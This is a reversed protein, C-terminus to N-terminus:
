PKILDLLFFIIKNDNQDDKVSSKMVGYYKYYAKPEQIILSDISKFKFGDKTEYFFFGPNGQAFTSKSALDLIIDFPTENLGKFSYSNGTEDM